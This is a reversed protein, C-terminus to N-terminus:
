YKIVEVVRGAAKGDGYPNHASAMKLYKSKDEILEACASLISERKTGVLLSTGAEVGEFRETTDRTVLVPKGLAPAEEQIGGSDTVIIDSANMLWVFQDYPLPDVLVINPIKKSDLATHVQKQVSPNFHVPFVITYQPYNVAIDCLADCLNQLGDGFNERRHGTVLILQKGKLSHLVEPLSAEGSAHMKDLIFHLADIGTNGTLFIKGTNVGEGLLNERNRHTPVFHYSATPAVMNRFGEEPWPSYMNGTRLGAEVHGFAIQKTYASMAAAIVTATDGQALVLDPKLSELYSDFSGLMAGVLSTLSSTKGMLNFDVDPQIGFLKVVDDVMERHQGTLCVSVNLHDYKKLEHIVPAMKIAEPRTGICVAITKGSSKM